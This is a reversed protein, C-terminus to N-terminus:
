VSVKGVRVRYVEFPIFPECKYKEAEVRFKPNSLVVVRSSEVRRLIIFLQV